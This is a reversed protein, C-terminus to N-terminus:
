PHRPSKAELSTTGVLIALCGLLLIGGGFLPGIQAGVVLTGVLAVLFLIALTLRADGLFMAYLEKFVDGLISM